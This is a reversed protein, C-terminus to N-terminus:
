PTITLVLTNSKVVTKTTRDEKEVQLSYRGPKTLDFQKDIPLSEKNDKGPEVFFGFRSSLRPGSLITPIVNGGDDRIIIEGTEWASWLSILM